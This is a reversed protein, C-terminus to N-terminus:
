TGIGVTLAEVSSAGTNYMETPAASPTSARAPRPRAKPGAPKATVDGVLGTKTSRGAFATPQKRAPAYVGHFAREAASCGPNGCAMDMPKRPETVLIDAM